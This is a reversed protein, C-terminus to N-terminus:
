SVNSISKIVESDLEAFSRAMDIDDYVYQRIERKFIKNMTNLIVKMLKNPAVIFYARLLNQYRKDHENLLRGYEARASSSIWKINSSDDIVVFPTDFKDFVKEKLAKFEIIDQHTPNESLCTMTVIPFDTVDIVAANCTYIKNM